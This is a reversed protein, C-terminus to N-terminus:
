KLRGLLEDLSVARGHVVNSNKDAVPKSAKTQGGKRAQAVANLDMAKVTRDTNRDTARDSTRDSTRDAAQGKKNLIDSLMAAQRETLHSSSSVGSAEKTGPSADVLDKACKQVIHDMIQKTLINAM